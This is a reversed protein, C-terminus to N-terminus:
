PWAEPKGTKKEISMKWSRDDNMQNRTSVKVPQTWSQDNGCTYADQRTLM